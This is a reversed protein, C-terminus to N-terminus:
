DNRQVGEPSTLYSPLASRDRPDGVFKEYWSAASGLNVRAWSEYGGIVLPLNGDGEPGVPPSADIGLVDMVKIFFEGYATEGAPVHEPFEM